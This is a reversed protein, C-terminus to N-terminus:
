DRQRPLKKLIRKAAKDISKGVSEPKGIMATALGGWVGEKTKVDVLVIVFTGQKNVRTVPTASTVGWAWYYSDFGWQVLFGELQSSTRGFGGTSVELEGGEAVELYGKRALERNVAQKIMPAFLADDEVLGYRTMVRPPLWHYTKYNAVNHKKSDFIKVKGPAALPVLLVAALLALVRESHVILLSM